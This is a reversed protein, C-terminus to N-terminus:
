SELIYIASTSATQKALVETCAKFNLLIPENSNGVGGGGGGGGGRCVVFCWRTGLNLILPAM